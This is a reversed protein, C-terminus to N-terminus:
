ASNGADQEVGLRTGLLNAIRDQLAARRADFFSLFDAMKEPINGLMHLDAYRDRDNKDPKEQLLWEGPMKDSKVTNELGELLQLNALRDSRDIFEDHKEYPIDAQRLASRRFRARPVVHDIHFRHRELDVFGFILTLLAFTRADGYKIDSLDEIEEHEFALSRGRRAMEERCGTVPFLGESKKIVERLASLLTDLGSGWIGSAKLISRTLWHRINKRDDQFERRTLYNQDHGRVHIYYAIPLLASDARLTHGNFGFQSVLGVTVILSNKVHNWNNELITMNERNFNDVKFGVSGIDSLMLGAKLVFDKSFSFGGGIDNLDRVLTRIEERADFEAWQAVAISLLLDSYSLVTGGSNMRIFIQLVKDLEQSKEEYFAITKDSHTLQHLRWMSEYADDVQDQHLRDNLWRTMSPGSDMSLIKSVPFWYENENAADARERTLFEFRYRQGESGDDHSQWLVDMYLQRDPYADASSRWKRALKWAMRGRFGINLSTLRQQGDLVATLSRNPMPPLREGYPNRLEHYNSVFDYYTFNGSCEPNVRWFLFTGIPYGQMLSDFLRCIQEPQWVFERQIAPLVLDHRALADLTEKITDGTQYM